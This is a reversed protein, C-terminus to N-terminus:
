HIKEGMPQNELTSTEETAELDCNKIQMENLPITNAMEFSQISDYNTNQDFEMSFQSHSCNHDLKNPEKEM